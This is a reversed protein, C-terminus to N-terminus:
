TNGDQYEVVEELNQGKRVVVAEGGSLDLVTTPKDPCSGGDIILAIQSGIREKIQDVDSLPHTDGLLQLTSSILPEGIEQLLASAVPNSPVRIGVTKKKKDALRQPVLKTSKVVFTFPGPIHGKLLRYAINDLAAYSGIDSLDKCALTMHHDAKIGRLSRIKSIGDSNDMLCGLAYYSDTPYAVVGGSKIIQIAKRVLRLQPNAPHLSFVQVAM